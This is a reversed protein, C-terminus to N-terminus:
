QKWVSLMNQMWGWVDMGYVAKLSAPDLAERCAGYSAIHGASMLLAHTGYMRAASLDHMVSLIARGPQKLWSSILSFTDRQYKLDLHNFPEDLLLVAPDQAFVQALFTRQLEGGSLTLVSQRRITDLGTIRLAHEVKAAGEPDAKAFVGRQHAYRGLRVVEEVTFAYGVHHRQTLVAAARALSATSMRRADQGLISVAGKYPVTQAIASVLTTKGAGNPGVVMLWQGEELTFSVNNVVCRHGFVVSLDKVSLMM